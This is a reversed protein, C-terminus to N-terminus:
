LSCVDLMHGNLHKKHKVGINEVQKVESISKNTDSTHKRDIGLQLLIERDILKLSRPLATVRVIELLPASTM